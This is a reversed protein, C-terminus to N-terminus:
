TAKVIWFPHRNNKFADLAHRWRRKALTKGSLLNILSIPQSLLAAPISGVIRAGGQLYLLGKNKLPKSYTLSAQLRM